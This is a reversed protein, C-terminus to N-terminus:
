SHMPVGRAVTQMMRKFEDFTMTKDNNVDACNMLVWADRKTIDDGTGQETLFAAIEEFTVRHDQSRDLLDFKERLINDKLLKKDNTLNLKLRLKALANNLSENLQQHAEVRAREM